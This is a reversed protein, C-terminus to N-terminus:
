EPQTEDRDRRFTLKRVRGVNDDSIYPAGDAGGVPCREAMEIGHRRLEINSQMRRAGAAGVGLSSSDYTPRNRARAPASRFLPSASASADDQHHGGLARPKAHSRFCRSTHMPDSDPPAATLQMPPYTPVKKIRKPSARLEVTIGMPKRLKDKDRLTM